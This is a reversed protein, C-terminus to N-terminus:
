KFKIHNNSQEATLIEKVGLNDPTFDSFLYDIEESINQRGHSAGLPNM